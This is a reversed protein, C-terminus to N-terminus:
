INDLHRKSKLHQGKNSHSYNLGCECVDIKNKFAKIKVDNIKRYEKMDALREVKNDDYHKKQYEQVHEKNDVVWQKIKRLPIHTNVCKLKRIYYAERALM